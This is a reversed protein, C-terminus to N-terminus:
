VHDEGESLTAVIEDGEMGIRDCLHVPIGAKSAARLNRQMIDSRAEQAAIEAKALALSYGPARKDPAVKELTEVLEALAVYGGLAALHAFDTIKIRTPTMGPLRDTESM